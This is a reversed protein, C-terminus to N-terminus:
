VFLYFTHHVRDFIIRKIALNKLQTLKNDLTQPTERADLTVALTLEEIPKLAGLRNNHYELSLAMMRHGYEHYAQLSPKFDEFTKVILSRIEDATPPKVPEAPAQPAGPFPIINEDM